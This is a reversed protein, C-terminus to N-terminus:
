ILFTQYLVQVDRILPPPAYGWDKPSRNETEEFLSIYAYAFSTIFLQQGVTLQDFSVKFDDQGEV